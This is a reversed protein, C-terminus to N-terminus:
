VSAPITITLSSCEFPQGAVVSTTPVIMEAGSTGVAGQALVTTGASDLLRFFSATGTADASNDRTIANATLVGGSAAPFATANLTLEALQTAGGLAADANAPVAGAFVRLKGANYAARIADLATNRQATTFSSAM